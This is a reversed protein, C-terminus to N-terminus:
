AREMADSGTGRGNIAQNVRELLEDLIAGADDEAPFQNTLLREIELADDSACELSFTGLAGALKHASQVAEARLDQTLRNNRAADVARRITEIRSQMLPLHKQWLDNIKQSLKEPSTMPENV